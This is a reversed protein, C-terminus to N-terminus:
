LEKYFDDLVKKIAQEYVTQYDARSITVFYIEDGASVLYLRDREVEYVGKERALTIGPIMRFIDILERINKSIVSFAKKFQTANEGTFNGENDLSYIKQIGPISKIRDTLSFNTAPNEKQTHQLAPKSASSNASAFNTNNKIIGMIEFHQKKMINEIREQEEPSSIPHKLKKEIKHLVQGKNSITTTLRPYPRYAYETQVQLAESGRKVLSTRGTPIYHTGNM